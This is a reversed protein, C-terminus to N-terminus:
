LEGPCIVRNLSILGLIGNVDGFMKFSGFDPNTATSVSLFVTSNTTIFRRVSFVNMCGQRGETFVVVPPVVVNDAGVAQSSV